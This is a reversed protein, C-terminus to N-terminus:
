VQFYNVAAEYATAAKAKKGAILNLQALQHKETETQLFETGFNLQNVVLFIQDEQEELVQNKLM